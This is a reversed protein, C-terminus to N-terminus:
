NTIKWYPQADAGGTVQEIKWGFDPVTKWGGATRDKVIQASRGGASLVLESQSNDNTSTDEDTQDPSEWCLAEGGIGREEATWILEATNDDYFNDVYCRRYRREIFGSSLDWGAGVVGSQNNSWQGASRCSQCSTPRGPGSRTDSLSQM